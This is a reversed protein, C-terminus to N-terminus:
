ASSPMRSKQRDRPSPSTYLLCTALKVRPLQPHDTDEYLLYLTVGPGIIMYSYTHFLLKSKIFFTDETYWQFNSNQLQYEILQKLRLGSNKGIKQLTKLILEVLNFLKKPEFCPSVDTSKNKRDKAKPFNQEKFILELSVGLLPFCTYQVRFVCKMSTYKSRCLQEEKEKKSLYYYCFFCQFVESNPLLHSGSILKM